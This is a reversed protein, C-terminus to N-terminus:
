IGVDESPWGFITPRSLFIICYEVPTPYRCYFLRMGLSTTMLINMKGDLVRNSPICLWSIQGLRDLRLNMCM